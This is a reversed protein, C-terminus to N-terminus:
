AIKIGSLYVKGESQEQIAFPILNYLEDLFSTKGLMAYKKVSVWEEYAKYIKDAETKIHKNVRCKEDIFDQVQLKAKRNGNTIRDALPNDSHVTGYEQMVLVWIAGCYSKLKKKFKEKLIDDKKISKFFKNTSREIAAQFVSEAFLEGASLDKLNENKKKFEKLYKEIYQGLASASNRDFLPFSTNFFRLTERKYIQPILSHSNVVNVTKVLSTALEVSKRKNNENESIETAFMKAREITNFEEYQQMKEHAIERVTKTNVEELEFGFHTSVLEEILEISM